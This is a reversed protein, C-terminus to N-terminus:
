HIWSCQFLIKDMDRGTDQDNNRCEVATSSHRCSFFQTGAMSLFASRYNDPCSNTVGGSAGPGLNLHFRNEISCPYPKGPEMSDTSNSGRTKDVAKGITYSNYIEGACYDVKPGPPFDGGGGGACSGGCAVASFKSGFVHLAQYGQMTGQPLVPAANCAVLNPSAVINLLKPPSSPECANAVVGNCLGRNEKISVDTVVNDGVSCSFDFNVREDFRARPIEIWSTKSQKMAKSEVYLDHDITVKAGRCSTDTCKYAYVMKTQLVRDQPTCPGRLGTCEDSKILASPINLDRTSMFTGCGTSGIESFCKQLASNSAIEARMMVLVSESQAQQIKSAHTTSILGQQRMRLDKKDNSGILQSSIVLVGTAMAAGMLVLAISTGRQSGCYFRKM